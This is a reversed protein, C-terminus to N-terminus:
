AWAAEAFVADASNAYEGNVPAEGEAGAMAAPAAALLNMGLGDGPGNASADVRIIFQGGVGTALIRFRATSGPISYAQTLVRTFTQNQGDRVTLTLTTLDASLVASISACNAWAVSVTSPDDLTWNWMLNGSGDIALIFGNLGSSALFEHKFGGTNSLIGGESVPRFDIGTEGFNLGTINGSNDAVPWKAVFINDTASANTVLSNGTSNSDFGSLFGFPDTETITYGAASPPKLFVATDVVGPANPKQPFVYRGQQDTTATLSVTQNDFSNGTLRVTVGALPTEGADFVGDNDFDIFVSGSITKPVFDVVTVDVRASATLGGTERDIIQYFFSDAGGPPITMPSTYLIQGGVVKVSGGGTTTIPGAGFSGGATLGVGNVVLTEGTDPAFSDNGLVAVPQDIGIGSQQRVATFTDNVATPADNTETVTISVTAINSDRGGATARYTFTIPGRAPRTTNFDSNVPTYTFTGDAALAVTGGETLNSVLVASLSQNETPDSDNGLVSPFSQVGAGETATVADNVAQPPAAVHISVTATDVLGGLDRAQYTFTFDGGGAPPTYVFGGDPSLVVSGQGPAIVPNVATLTDGDIDTDNFLVGKPTGNATVTLVQGIATQYSDNVADPTDNVGTITIAVTATSTGDGVNNTPDDDEITYTFTVPSGPPTFFNGGPPTYQIQNSVIAVTGQGAAPQTVASISTVTPADEKFDNALVDITQVATEGETITRNDRVAFPRFGPDLKITVTSTTTAAPGPTNGNDNTSITLIATGTFGDAPTYRVNALQTNISDQSGNLTISAATQAGITLTGTGAALSLTTQISASAADVDFVSLQNGGAANFDLAVGPTTIQDPTAGSIAVGALRNEPADNIANVTVNFTRTFTDVGGSATLGDDKVTVTITATGSLNAAPTFVLSGTAGGTYNVTINPILTANTTTVATVTLNQSAEDVGGGPGIGTLNVTAQTDESVTQNAIPALVPADNIPAVIVTVTGTEFNDPNTDGQVRATYTFTVTGAFNDNASFTVNNGNQTVTGGASAPGVSGPVLEIIPDVPDGENDTVNALINIPFNKTEENINVTFDNATILGSTILLDIPSRIIDLPDVFTQEGVNAFTRTDHASRNLDNLGLLPTFTQVVGQPPADVPLVAKMRVRVLEFFTGAGLPPATQKSVAGVEDMRDEVDRADPDTQYVSAPVVVVGNSLINRTRFAESFSDRNAGTATIPDKISTDGDVNIVSGAVTPTNDSADRVSVTGQAGGTIAATFKNFNVDYEGTFWISFVSSQGQLSLFEVQVSNPGFMPALTTNVATQIALATAARQADSSTAFPIPATTLVSPFLGAATGDLSLTFTDGGGETTTVVTAANTDSSVIQSVNTSALTSGFRVTFPGGTSGTVTINGSPNLAPITRLKALLVGTTTSANMTLPGGTANTGNFSFTVPGGAGVVSITQTESTSLLAVSQIEAVRVSTLTDEYGIDLYAAFVGTPDTRDIRLDQVYVALDFDQGDQVSTIEDNTGPKLTRIQYEVYPNDGPAGEANLYNIIELADASTLYGDNDVDLYTTIGNEGEAGPLREPLEFSGYANLYNIVELADNAAIQRDDTVDLPMTANFYDSQFVDGALLSREELREARLGRRIQEKIASRRRNRLAARRDLRCALKMATGYFSIDRDTKGPSYFGRQNM